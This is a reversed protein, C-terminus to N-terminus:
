DSVTKVSGKEDMSADRSGDSADDYANDEAYDYARGDVVIPDKLEKKPPSVSKEVDDDVEFPEEYDEDDSPLDIAGNAVNDLPATSAAGDLKMAPPRPLQSLHPAPEGDEFEEDDYENDDSDEQCSAVAAKATPESVSTAATGATRSQTSSQQWVPAAAPAVPAAKPAVTPAPQHVRAASVPTALPQHVAKAVPSQRDDAEFDESYDGDSEDANVGSRSANRAAETRQEASGYAARPPAEPSAASTSHTAITAPQSVPLTAAPGQMVAAVSAAAAAPPSQPAEGGGGAVADGTSSWRPTAITAPQSVPLTAAPGQTVAAVPAAAAAPPSQPAEGGGGAVAGDTSSWKPTSSASPRDVASQPRITASAPPTPRSPSNASMPRAGGSPPALFSPTALFEKRPEAHRPEPTAAPTRVETPRPLGGRPSLSFFMPPHGPTLRPPKSNVPTVSLHTASAANDVAQSMPKTMRQILESVDEGNQGSSLLRVMNNTLRDIDPWRRSVIKSWVELRDPMRAFRAFAGPSKLTVEFAGLRPYRIKDGPKRPHTFWNKMNYFQELGKGPGPNTVVEHPIGEDTFRRRISMELRKAYDPYKDVKFTTHFGNDEDHCEIQIIVRIDGGGSNCWGEGWNGMAHWVLRDV